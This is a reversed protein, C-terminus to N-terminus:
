MLSDNFSIQVYQFKNFESNLSHENIPYDGLNLWKRSFLCDPFESFELPVFSIRDLPESQYNTKSELKSLPFRSNTSISFM